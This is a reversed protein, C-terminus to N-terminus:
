VDRVRLQTVFPFLKWYNKWPKRRFVWCTMLKVRLVCIRLPFGRTPSLFSHRWLVFRYSRLSASSYMKESEILVWKHLLLCATSSQRWSSRLGSFITKFRLYQFHSCCDSSLLTQCDHMRDLAQRICSVTWFYDNYLRLRSWIKIDYM